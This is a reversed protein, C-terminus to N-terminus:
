FTLKFGANANPVTDGGPTGSVGGEVGVTVGPKIEKSLGAKAGMEGGASGTAGLSLDLGGPLRKTYSAEGDSYSGAKPDGNKLDPM